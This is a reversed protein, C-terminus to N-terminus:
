KLILYLIIALGLFYALWFKGRCSIKPAAPLPPRYSKQIYFPTKM